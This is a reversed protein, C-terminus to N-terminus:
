ALKRLHGASTKLVILLAILYLNAVLAGAIAFPHIAMAAIIYLRATPGLIGVARVVGSSTAPLAAIADQVRVYFNYARVLWGGERPKAVGRGVYVNKHYDLLLSHVAMGIGSAAALGVATWPGITPTPFRLLYVLLGVHVSIGVVYDGAGDLIRGLETGGGRMRALQGDACDLILSVVICAGAWGLHGLGLLVGGAAGVVMAALTVHNPSVPTRRLSVALLSAIPRDIVADPLEDTCKWM